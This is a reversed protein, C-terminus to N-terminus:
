KVIYMNVHFKHESNLINNQKKLIIFATVKHNEINMQEYSKNLNAKMFKITRTEIFNQMVRSMCLKNFNYDAWALVFIAHNIQKICYM